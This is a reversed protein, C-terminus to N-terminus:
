PLEVDTSLAVSVGDFHFIVEARLRGEAGPPLPIETFRFLIMDGTEGPAPALIDAEFPPEPEGGVFLIVEIRDPRPCADCFAGADNDVRLLLDRENADFVDAIEPAVPPSGDPLLPADLLVDAVGEDAMGEDPTRGDIAAMDPTSMDGLSLVSWDDDLPSADLLWGDVVFADVPPGISADDGPTLDLSPLPVGGDFPVGEDFGFDVPDVTRREADAGEVDAGEVDAGPSVCSPHSPLWDCDVDLDLETALCGWLSASAVLSTCAIRTLTSTM